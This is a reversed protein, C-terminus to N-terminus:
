KTKQVATLPFRTDSVFIERILGRYFSSSLGCNGYCCCLSLHISRKSIPERWSKLGCKPRHHNLSDSRCWISVRFLDCQGSVIAFYNIHMPILVKDKLIDRWRWGTDMWHTLVLSERLWVKRGPTGLFLRRTHQAQSLALEQMQHM